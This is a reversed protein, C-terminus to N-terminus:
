RSGVHSSFAEPIRSPRSFSSPPAVAADREVVEVM